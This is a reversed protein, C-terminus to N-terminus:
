NVLYLRGNSFKEYLDRTEFSDYYEFIGHAASSQRIVDQQFETDTMEKLNIATNQSNDKSIDECSISDEHNNFIYYEFEDNLVGEDVDVSFAFPMGGAKAVVFSSSKTLLREEYIKAESQTLIFFNLRKSSSDASNKFFVLKDDKPSYFIGLRLSDPNNSNNQLETCFKENMTSLFSFKKEASEASNENKEYEFKMGSFQKLPFKAERVSGKKSFLSNNSKTGTEIIKELLFASKAIKLLWGYDVDWSGDGKVRGTRLGQPKKKCDLDSKLKVDFTDDSELFVKQLYLVKDNKNKLNESGGGYKHSSRRIILNQEKDTEGGDNFEINKAAIYQKEHASLEKNEKTHEPRVLGRWRVM